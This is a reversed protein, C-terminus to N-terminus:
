LLMWGVRGAWHTEENNLPNQEGKREPTRFNSGTICGRNSEERRQSMMHTHAVEPFNPLAVSHVSETRSTLGATVDMGLQIEAHPGEM